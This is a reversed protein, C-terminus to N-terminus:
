REIKLSGSLITSMKFVRKTALSAKHASCEIRIMWNTKEIFKKGHNNFAADHTVAITNQPPIHESIMGLTKTAVSEADHKQDFFEQGISYSLM